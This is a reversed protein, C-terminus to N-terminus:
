ETFTVGDILTDLLRRGDDAAVDRGCLDIVVVVDDTRFLVAAGLETAAIPCRPSTARYIVRRGDREVVTNREEPRVQTDANQEIVTAAVVGSPLSLLPFWCGETIGAGDDTRRCGDARMPETSIWALLTWMTGIFGYTNGSAYWGPPPTIRVRFRRLDVVADRETMLIATTPPPAAATRVTPVTAPPAITTTAPATTHRPQCAMLAATVTVTLAKRVRM